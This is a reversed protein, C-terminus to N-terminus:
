FSITWTLGPVPIENASLFPKPPQCNILNLSFKSSAFTRKIVNLRNANVGWITLGTLEVPISIAIAAMGILIGFGEGANKTALIEIGGGVIGIAGIASIVKGSHVSRSYWGYADNLQDHSLLRIDNVGYRQQYWQCNGSTNLLLLGTIILFFKKM